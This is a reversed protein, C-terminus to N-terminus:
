RATPSRRGRGPRAPSPTPARALRRMMARVTAGPDRARGRGVTGLLRAAEAARGGSRALALELATRELADIAARLDFAGAALERELAARDTLAASGREDARVIRAPLDAVLLEDGGRKGVLAQYVVNRLERVNGPWRYAALAALTAAGVQTVAHRHPGPEEAYYRAILHDVLGPLDAARARLPPLHIQIIALRQYLDDALVGRELLMAPDRNTAAIIRFDVARWVNEGLRSIVRDELVRLLKAQLTLPTDDIEDLFVTGGAAAALQGDYDGVAGSFAGRVHGFLESEILENPVAACNIAVLRAKARASAAHLLRAMVDKGTGTEGTLLVPMSTAAARAVEGLAAQMAASAAIVGDVALRPSPQALETVRAVLRAAAALDGLEIVDYAGAKVAAIVLAPPVPGACAWLWPAASPALPTRPASTAVVTIAADPASTLAAGAARLGRTLAPAPAPRGLWRVTITM